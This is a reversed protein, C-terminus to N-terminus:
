SWNAIVKALNNVKATVTNVVKNVRVKCKNHGRQSLNM